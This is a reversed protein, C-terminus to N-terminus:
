PGEQEGGQGGRAAPSPIDRQRDHAACHFGHVRADVRYVVDERGAKRTSTANAGLQELTKVTRLHSLHATLHYSMLSVMHSAGCNASTECRSGTNVYLGVHATLGQNDISVINLGNEFKRRCKKRIRRCLNKVFQHHDIWTPVDDVRAWYARV